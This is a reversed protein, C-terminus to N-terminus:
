RIERQLYEPTSVCFHKEFKPLDSQFLISRQDTWHISM